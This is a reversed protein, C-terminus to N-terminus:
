RSNSVGAIVPSIAQIRCAGHPFANCDFRPLAQRRSLLDTAAIDRAEVNFSFACAHADLIAETVPSFTHFGGYPFCFTRVGQGVVSELFDFSDAIEAEQRAPELKSMVPHSVSHSGIMMGAETMAQLEDRSMYYRNALDAENPFFRDMLADIVAERHRYDIFYNLLRKVRTTAVDNDQRTYTESYFEKVHAHSLMDDTVINRIADVIVAGGYRGLLLHIRHVDLLLGSRYPLTPVYFIGWLDRRRLEPLVYRYHDSFGDDFTLVVGPVPRGTSLSALFDERSVFGYEGAFWDLQRSFDDIHLHRFHPLSEDDPRVYHYMVAKTM